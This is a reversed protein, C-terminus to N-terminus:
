SRPQRRAQYHYLFGSTITTARGVNRGDVTYAYSLEFVLSRLKPIPYMVQGGIKSFNMRNSVFPMDQRRIDGGGRTRQNSFVFDAMLGNKLYGASATSEVVSPMDVESTNFLTNETFYYPRDLTVHSRWTYAASGNVFWGAHTQWNLTFRGSLRKSASGISLPLFDPTYDTLPLGGAIVGIGRLSGYQSAAHEFLRYKAALTVDQFGSQGRLVGQSARTWVYPFLGIVNLRDTVGYNASWVNNQTTLTGINGNTRELTGEWYHDWSDHTYVDGAFLDHKVLMVGDDITQAHLRAPVCALLMLFPLITRRLM